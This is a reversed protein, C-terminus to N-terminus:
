QRAYASGWGAIAMADPAISDLLPLLTGRYEAATIEEYVRGPFATIVRPSSEGGGAEDWAYTADTGATELGIVEWGLPGLAEAASKLRAYHYPGYRTFHVILRPV